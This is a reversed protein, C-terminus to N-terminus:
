KAVLQIMTAKDLAAIMAYLVSGDQWVLLHKGDRFSEVYRKGQQLVYRMPRDLYVYGETAMEAPFQSVLVKTGAAQYIWCLFMRDMLEVKKAGILTARLPPAIRPFDRHQRELWQFVEEPHTAEIDMKVKGNLLTELGSVLHERIVVSSEPHFLDANGSAKWVGVYWLGVGVLVTVVAIQYRKLLQLLRQVFAFRVRHAVMATPLPATQRYAAFQQRYEQLCQHVFMEQRLQQQFQPNARSLEAILRKEEEDLVEGDIYAALLAGIREQEKM